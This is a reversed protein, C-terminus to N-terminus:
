RPGCMAWELDKAQTPTPAQIPGALTAMMLAAGAIRLGQMAFRKLGKTEFNWHTDM